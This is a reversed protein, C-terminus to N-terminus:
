KNFMNVKLTVGKQNKKKEKTEQIEGTCVLIFETSLVKKKEPFQYMSFSLLM